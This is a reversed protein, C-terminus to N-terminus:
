FNTWLVVDIMDADAQPAPGFFDQSAGFLPKPLEAEEAVVLEEVPQPWDLVVTLPVTGALVAVVAVADAPFVFMVVDTGSVVAFGATVELTPLLAVAFRSGNPAATGDAFEVTALVPEPFLRLLLLLLLLLPPPPVPGVAAPFVLEFLAAGNGAVASVAFGTGKPAATCVVAAKPEAAGDDVGAVFEVPFM